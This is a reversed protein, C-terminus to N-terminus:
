ALLALIVLAVVAVAAHGALFDRPAEIRLPAIGHCPDCYDLVRKRVPTMM